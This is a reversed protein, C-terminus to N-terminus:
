FLHHKPKHQFKLNTGVNIIDQLIKTKKKKSSYKSNKKKKQMMFYKLKQLEEKAKLYKKM